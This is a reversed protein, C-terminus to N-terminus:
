IERGTVRGNSGQKCVPISLTDELSWGRLLRGKIINKTLGRHKAWETVTMTKGEFTLSMVNQRNELAYAITKGKKYVATTLIKKSVGLIKSWESLSKMEGKYEFKAAKERSAKHAASLTEEFSSAERTLAAELSGWQRIRHQLINYPIGTKDVWGRLTHTEGNYTYREGLNMDLLTQRIQKRRAEGYKKGTHAASIKANHEATNLGRRAIDSAQCHNYGVKHPVLADLFLQEYFHLDEHSCLMLPVFRFSDQGHELWARQLKISHHDQRNLAARHHNWRLRFCKTSGIYRKGTTDNIIQYVGGSNLM